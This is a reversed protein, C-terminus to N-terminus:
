SIIEGEQMRMDDFKARLSEVKARLFNKDGGCITALSDWMKKANELGKMDDFEAYSITSAIELM